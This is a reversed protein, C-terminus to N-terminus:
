APRPAQEGDLALAQPDITAFAEVVGPDFQRGAQNHIEALARVLDWARSYPREHTLVDFVDAVATIRGAIPIDPGALGALYGTGDWREHHTRAIEAAMRLAPSRASGLIRAGIEVHRTMHVWEVPTLQGPKLLIRRSIGVKGIDHLPAADRIAAIFSEPLGLAKAIRAACTGVRQTHQLTDDDHYEAISALVTLSDRRADDLEATRKRVADSLLADRNELQRRLQRAELLNGVRLALENGDPPKSIFDCAGISLARRRGDAADDGALALVPLRGPADVLHRLEGIVQEACRGPLDLDLLVLDPSDTACLHRVAISSRARVLHTYGAQTLVRELLEVGAVDEAVIMVRMDGLEPM